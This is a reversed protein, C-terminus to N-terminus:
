KVASKLFNKIETEGIIKIGNEKLLKATFGDGDVITKSFTGDYIKGSGCSPSREKLIAFKCNYIKALKLTEEAGRIFEATLDVSDKNIVSEGRIEAPSRPTSLGGLQEPCIPILLHKSILEELEPIMKGTANYRCNVGLLCASILINM